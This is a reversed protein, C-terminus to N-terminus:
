SSGTEALGSQNCDCNVIQRHRLGPRPKNLRSLAFLRSRSAGIRLFRIGAANTALLQGLKVASSRRDAIRAQSAAAAPIPMSTTPRSM